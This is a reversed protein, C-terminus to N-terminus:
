AEEEGSEADPVSGLWWLNALRSLATADEGLGAQAANRLRDHEFREGQVCASAFECYECATPTAGAATEVRPFFVGEDWCELLLQALKPFGESVLPDEGDLSAEAFSADIREDIFLYRGTAGGEHPARAYAAVQLRRGEAVAKHLHRQRTDARKGESIPRGTKYDTLVLRGERLDVRDAFFSITRREGRHDEVFTDIRLESGVVSVRSEESPWDIELARRIYPLSREALTRHMGPLTLANRLAQERAAGAALEHVHQWQPRAIERAGQEIAQVFDEPLEGHGRVIQDLVRHVVDGILRQELGPAGAPDPAPEVRLVNRLFARWPCSAIAELWTIFLAGARPDSKDSMPAVFGSWPGPGALRRRGEPTFPHPDKEELIAQRASAAEAALNDDRSELALPLLAAWQERTGILAALRLNEQATRPRNEGGAWEGSLALSQLRPVKRPEEIDAREVLLRELLPSIERAHGESDSRQWSLTVAPAADLLQAFLHSEEDYGRRKIPLDPLVELLSSRISDEVIPDETITRPFVGANLGVVFLHEFTLGAARNADIIRVGGGKSDSGAIPVVGENELQKRLLDQFEERTLEEGQGPLRSLRVLVGPTDIDRADDKWDLQKTLLATAHAGHTELTAAGPWKKLMEGLARALAQARKLFDASLWFRRARLPVNGDDGPAVFGERIPLALGKGAGVEELSLEVLQSLRVVGLSRLGLVLLEPQKIRAGAQLWTDLSASMGDELLRTLALAKRGQSTFAQPLQEGGFPVGLDAFERRIAPFYDRIQRAVVGIREPRAGGALLARVRRAVERIEADGGSANFTEIGSRAPVAKSAEFTAVDKLRGRLRRTFADVREDPKVSVPNPPEDLYLRADCAGLLARLLRTAKGTADSYGHIFVARAPLVSAGQEELLRAARAVRDEQRGIGLRDMELASQHSARAVAEARAKDKARGPARVIAAVVEDLNKSDTGLGASMFDRMAAAAVGYGDEFDELVERLVKEQAAYRRALVSGLGDELALSERANRLIDAATAQLTQVSIGLVAPGLKEAILTAVHDRLARSRVVVLVPTKLLAPNERVDQLAARLDALLRQQTARPGGCVIVRGNQSSSNSSM